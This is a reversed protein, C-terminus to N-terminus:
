LESCVDFLKCPDRVSITMIALNSQLLEFIDGIRPQFDCSDPDIHVLSFFNLTFIATFMPSLPDIWFLSSTIMVLVCIPSGNSTEPTSTRLRAAAHAGFPTTARVDRLPNHIASIGVSGFSSAERDRAGNFSAEPFHSSQPADAHHGKDVRLPQSPTRELRVASSQSACLDTTPLRISLPPSPWRESVSISQPAAALSYDQTQAVLMRHVHMHFCEQRAVAVEGPRQAFDWESLTHAHSSQQPVTSNLLKM